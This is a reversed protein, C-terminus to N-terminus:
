EVPHEPICLVKDITFKYKFFDPSAIQLKRYINEVYCSM